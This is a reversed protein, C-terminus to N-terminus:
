REREREESKKVSERHLLAVDSDKRQARFRVCARLDLALSLVITDTRALSFSLLLPLSLFPSLSLPPPPPLSLPPSPSPLFLPSFFLFLSLAPFDAASLVQSGFIYNSLMKSGISQGGIDWIQGARAAHCGNDVKVFILM